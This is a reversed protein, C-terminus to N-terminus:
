SPIEGNSVRRVGARSLAIEARFHQKVEEPADLESLPIVQYTGQESSRRVGNSSDEMAARMTRENLWKGVADVDNQASFSPASYLSAAVLLSVALGQAHHTSAASGPMRRFLPRDYTISENVSLLCNARSLTKMAASAEASILLATAM